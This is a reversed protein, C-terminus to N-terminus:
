TFSRSSGETILKVASPACTNGGVESSAAHAGSRCAACESGSGKGAGAGAGVTRPGRGLFPDRRRHGSRIPPCRYKGAVAHQRLLVPSRGHAPLLRGARTQHQSVPGVPGRSCRGPQFGSFHESREVWIQARASPPDGVRLNVDDSGARRDFKKRQDLPQLRTAIQVPNFRGHQVGGGCRLFLTLFLRSQLRQRLTPRNM